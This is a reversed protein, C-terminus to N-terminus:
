IEWEIIEMEILEKSFRRKMRNMQRKVYKSRLKTKQNPNDLRWYDWNTEAQCMPKSM